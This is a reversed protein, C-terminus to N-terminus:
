EEKLENFVRIDNDQKNPDSIRIVSGQGDIEVTANRTGHEYLLEFSIKESLTALQWSLNLPSQRHTDEESEDV